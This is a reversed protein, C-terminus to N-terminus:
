NTSNKFDFINLYKKDIDFICNDTIVVVQKGNLHFPHDSKNFDILLYYYENIYRVDLLKVKQNLIFKDSGYLNVNEVNENIITKLTKDSKLNILKESRLEIETTFYEDIDLYDFVGVYENEGIIYYVDHTGESVFNSVQVVENIIYKNNIKFHEKEKRCVIIDSKKYM